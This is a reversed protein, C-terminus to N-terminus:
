QSPSSSVRPPARAQPAPTTSNKFREWPSHPCHEQRPMSGNPRALEVPSDLAAAWARQSLSMFHRFRKPSADWVLRSRSAWRVPFPGRDSTPQVPLTASFRLHTHQGHVSADCTSRAFWLMSVIQRRRHKLILYGSFKKRSRPFWSDLEILRM